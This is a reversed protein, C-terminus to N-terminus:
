LGLCDGFWGIWWILVVFHCCCRYENLYYDILIFWFSIWFGQWDSGTTKPWGSAFMTVIGAWLFQCLESFFFQSAFWSFIRYALWFCVGYYDCVGINLGLSLSSDKKWRGVSTPYEWNRTMHLHERWVVRPSPSILKPCRCMSSFSM